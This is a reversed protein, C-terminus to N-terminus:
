QGADEVREDIGPMVAPRTSECMCGHERCEPLYCPAYECPCWVFPGHDEGTL